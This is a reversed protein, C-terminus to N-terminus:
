KKKYGSPCKPTLGTVKKTTKGKICTITKKKVSAAQFEAELKAALEWSAKAAEQKVKLQAIAIEEAIEEERISTTESFSPGFWEWGDKM